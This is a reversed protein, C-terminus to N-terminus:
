GILVSFFIQQESDKRHLAIQFYNTKPVVRFNSNNTKKQVKTDM